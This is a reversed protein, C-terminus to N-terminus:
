NKEQKTESASIKRWPTSDLKLEKELEEIALLFKQHTKIENKEKEVFEKAKLRILSPPQDKGVSPGQRAGIFEEPDYKQAMKLRIIAALYDRCHANFFRDMIEQPTARKIKEVEEAM